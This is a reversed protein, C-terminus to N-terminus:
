VPWGTFCVFREEHLLFLLNAQGLVPDLDLMSLLLINTFDKLIEYHM